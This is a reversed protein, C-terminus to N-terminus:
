NGNHTKLDKKLITNFFASAKLKESNLIIVSPKDYINKNQQPISQRYRRQQIKIMFPHQTRDYAKARDISIIIHNEGKIENVLYIVTVSECVNCWEQM